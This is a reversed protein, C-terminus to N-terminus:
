GAQPSIIYRCATSFRILYLLPTITRGIRSIPSLMSLFWFYSVADGKKPTKYQTNHTFIFDTEFSFGARHYAMPLYTRQTLLTNRLLSIPFIDATTRDLHLIRHPWTSWSFTDLCSILYVAGASVM